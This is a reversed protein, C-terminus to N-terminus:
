ERRSRWFNLPRFPSRMISAKCRTRKETRLFTAQFASEVGEATVQLGLHHAMVIIARVIAGGNEVAAAVGIRKVFSRDIKIRSFPYRTLYSLSAYGTGFDDFALGM